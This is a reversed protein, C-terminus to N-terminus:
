VKTREKYRYRRRLLIIGAPLATLLAIWQSESLGIWFLRGTDGRLFELLFRIVGYGLFYLLLVEDRRNKYWATYYLLFFLGLNCLSEVLQVPFRRVGNVYLFGLSSEIGYCCGALYCGARGIVHFLALGPMSVSFTDGHPLKYYRDYLFLVAAVCLPTGYYVRMSFMNIGLAPVASIGETCATGIVKFIMRLLRTGLEGALCTLIVINVFHLVFLRNRLYKRWVFVAYLIAATVGAMGFFVYSGIALEGIRIVPQM